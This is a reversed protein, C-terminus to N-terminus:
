FQQADHLAFKRREIGFIAPNIKHPSVFFFWRCAGELNSFSWIAPMIAYFFTPM